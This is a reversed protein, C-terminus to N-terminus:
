VAQAAASHVPQSAPGNQFWDAIENGSVRMRAMINRRKAFAHPLTRALRWFAPLSTPESFICGAVVLFDRATITAWHRRYLEPTMNKVRMLFRNKVSHMRLVPPVVDRPGPKVGRVHYGAADPTYLCRWGLLQARWALDADERYCFFDPDFFDPGEKIDEIMERRYLAAAACAGFVYEVRDYQGHDADGWGRDFHRIEPTFYIGTSDILPGPLPEGEPGMRLLKGCAAGVFPDDDAADILSAIFDPLLKVDPNLTLVWAGKSAAIAQNQGTSFGANERNRFLRIKQRYSRLIALTNDSSANDVVVIEIPAYRQALVADLCQAIYRSSNFTVITVSVLPSAM